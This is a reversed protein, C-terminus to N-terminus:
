FWPIINGFDALFLDHGIHNIALGTTAHHGPYASFIGSGFDHYSAGQEPGPESEAQVSLIQGTFRIDDKWSFPNRNKHM